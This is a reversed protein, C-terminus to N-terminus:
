TSRQKAVLSLVIKSHDFGQGLTEVESFRGNQRVFISFNGTRGAVWLGGENVTESIAELVLRSQEDTFAGHANLLRVVDYHEASPEFFDERALRFSRNTAALQLAETCYLAIRDAGDIRRRVIPWLPAVFYHWLGHRMSMGTKKAAIQLPEHAADFLFDLGAFRVRLISDYYDSATM